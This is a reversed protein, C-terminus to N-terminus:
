MSLTCESYLEVQGEVEYRYNREPWGNSRGSFKCERTEYGDISGDHLCTRTIFVGKRGVKIYYFHRKCPYVKKRIKARFCLNHTSTLGM